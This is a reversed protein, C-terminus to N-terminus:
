DSSELFDNAERIPLYRSSWRQGPNTQIPYNRPQVSYFQWRCIIQLGVPSWRAVICKRSVEADGVILSVDCAGCVLCPSQCSSMMYRQAECKVMYSCKGRVRRPFQPILCYSGRKSQTTNQKIICNLLSQPREGAM